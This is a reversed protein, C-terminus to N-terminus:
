ARFKNLKLANAMALPMIDTASIRGLGGGVCARESFEIVGDTRCWKSHLLIPVPHWSHGKLLAPTSHDGTVVLVDPNLNVLQPLLADAEEIVQVKRDFDGDEGASDTQKIHVYFFDHNAWNEALTDLEDAFTSGTSLVEMGVLKALGRYMPYAAIAAPNLKFVEGMQPLNPRQSFGRFLVMNAPHSDALVSRAQTVFKNALTATQVAGPSLPAADKPMLGVQQPDTDKVEGSLGKGRFVLAFRHEKVPIVFVEIGDVKIQSLHQCLQISRETDIRGARRDTVISNEGVTCFNGRVAVDGEQLEFDVGLAELVGRGVLYKVPDYGFLSLHGPGSGPTIGPSVPDSLGCTGEAALRDLNPTDAAELETKGTEPHPLGGLGDFVLLVIKSPTKESIEKLVEFDIM